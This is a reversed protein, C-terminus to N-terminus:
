SFTSALWTSCFSSFTGQQVMSFSYVRPEAPWSRVRNWAKTSLRSILRIWPFSARDHLQFVQRVGGHRRHVFLELPEVGLPLGAVAGAAQAAPILVLGADGAIPLPAAHLVGERVVARPQVVQHAHRGHHGLGRHRHQLAEPFVPPHAGIQAGEGKNVPQELAIAARLQPDGVPIHVADHGAEGVLDGQHQGVVPPQAAAGQGIVDDGHVLHQGRQEHRAEGGQDGDGDLGQRLEDDAVDVLMQLGVIDIHRLGEAQRRVHAGAARRLGAHGNVVVEGHHALGDQGGIHGAVGALGGGHELPPAETHRIEGHGQGHDVVLGPGM